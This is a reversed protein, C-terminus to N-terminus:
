NQSLPASNDIWRLVREGVWRYGYPSFHPGAASFLAQNRGLDGRSVVLYPLQNQSAFEVLTNRTLDQIEYNCCRESNYGPHEIIVIRLTAGLQNATSRIEEAVRRLLILETQEAEIGDLTEGYGHTYPDPLSRQRREIARKIHDDLFEKLSRSSSEVNDLLGQSYHADEIYALLKTTKEERLNALDNGAFVFWIVAKGHVYKGYERLTALEFLPGAGGRGLNLVSRGSARFLGAFNEDDQVCSGETFSDGIFIFDVNKGSQGKPNRFGIEDTDFISWQGSENCDVVTIQSPQALHYRSPMIELQPDYFYSPYALIGRQRLGLVTSLKDYEAIGRHTNRLREAISDILRLSAFTRNSYDRQRQYIAISAIAEIVFLILFLVAINVLIIRPWSARKAM